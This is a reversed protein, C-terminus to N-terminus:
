RKPKYKAQELFQQADKLALLKEISTDRNRKMYSEVIKFGIYNATRGPAEQPMGPSNPSHDVLKRINQFDTSYLLEEHLFYSWMQLENEEVWATQDATYGLKVSDPTYPLLQDLIYLKKGNHIMLDLLREGSPQGVHDEIIAEMVRIPIYEKNMTRKIYRPFHVPDYFPYDEGLFFDLGLGVVNNDALFVGYSYESIFTYVTPVQRDPFHYQYYLFAEDLEEKIDTMESFVIQTTDYLKSVPQFNLFGSVAKEFDPQPIKNLPIGLVNQFYLTYFEPYQNNLQNLQSSIKTTDMEFLAQEFRVLGVDASLHSVDPINKGKDNTCANISLFILTSCFFYFLQKM